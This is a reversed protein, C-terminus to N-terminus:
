MEGFDRLRGSLNIEVCKMCPCFFAQGEPFVIHGCHKCIMRGNALVKLEQFKTGVVCYPCREIGKTKTAM